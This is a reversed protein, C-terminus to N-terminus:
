IGLCPLLACAAAVNNVSILTFDEIKRSPASSQRRQLRTLISFLALCGKLSAGISFGKTSATIVRRLKESDKFPALDLWLSSCSYCSSSSSPDSRKCHMCGRNDFGNIYDDYSSGNEISFCSCFGISRATADGTPLCDATPNHNHLQTATTPHFTTTEHFSSFSSLSAVLNHQHKQLKDLGFTTM